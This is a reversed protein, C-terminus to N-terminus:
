IQPLPVSDINENLLLLYFTTEPNLKWRRDGVLHKLRSFTRECAAESAPTTLSHLAILSLNHLEKNEFMIKNWVGVSDASTQVIDLSFFDEDM